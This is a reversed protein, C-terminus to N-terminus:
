HFKTAVLYCLNVNFAVLHQLISPLLLLWPGGCFVCLRINRDGSGTGKYDTGARWQASNAARSACFQRMLSPAPSQKVFHFETRSHIVAGSLEPHQGTIRKSIILENTLCTCYQIHNFTTITKLLFAM